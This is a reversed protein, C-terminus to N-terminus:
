LKPMFRNTFLQELPMKKSIVSRQHLWDHVAKWRSGDQRLSKPFYPLTARFTKASLDQDAIANAKQYLRLAEDPQEHTMALGRALARSFGRVIQPHRRAMRDSTMIVLQYLDPVNYTTPSVFEVSAGKLEAEVQEYNVFAGFVADAKGTMLADTLAFGVDVPLIDDLTLGAAELMTDLIPLDIELGPWGVWRHRLNELRKIPGDKLYMLCVVTHTLLPGISILPQGHSRAKILNTQEGVGFDAKGRAVLDLSEEPVTPVLISLDLGEERFFGREKAVVFPLHDPNLFWELALTVLTPPPSARKRQHASRRATM